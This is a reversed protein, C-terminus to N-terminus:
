GLKLVDSFFSTSRSKSKVQYFSDCDVLISDEGIVKINEWAIRQDGERGFMGLVRRGFIIISVLRGTETDIEVDGLYGLITGDKICVVQKERMDYIGLNM